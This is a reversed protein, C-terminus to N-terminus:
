IEFEQEKQPILIVIILPYEVLIFIDITIEQAPM